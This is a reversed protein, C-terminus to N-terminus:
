RTQWLLGRANYKQSENNGDIRRRRAALRPSSTDRKTWYGGSHELMSREGVGVADPLWGPAPPTV